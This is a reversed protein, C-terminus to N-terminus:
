TMPVSVRSSVHDGFYTFSNKPTEIVRVSVLTTDSPVHPAVVDWIARTVNEGTSTFGKIGFTTDMNANRLKPALVSEIMERVAGRGLVVPRQAHTDAACTIEVRYLHGHGAPNACEGFIELNETADLGASWLKHIANFQSVFTFYVM